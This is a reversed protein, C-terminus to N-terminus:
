KLYENEIKKAVDRIDYGANKIVQSSDIRKFSNMKDFVIDSWYKASCSLPIKTTNVINVEDPMNDSIFCSLGSCQAELVAIGFAEFLSPFIFCDMIQYLCDVDNRAGMFMVNNEINLKKVKDHIDNELDGVGILILISNKNKKYIEFFVEILFKHNKEKSFRGVNGIVFKNDIKLENRLKRRIQYNFRFKETNIGNNIVAFETKKGYLSIGAISSCAFLHTASFVILKSLISRYINIFFSNTPEILLHAHSIRTKVGCLKAAFLIVGNICSYNSQVVDYKYKRLFIFSAIFYGLAKLCIIVNQYYIKVGLNLVESDYFYKKKIPLVLGIDFKDRNLNSLMNILWIEIGGCGLAEVFYIIKHKNM